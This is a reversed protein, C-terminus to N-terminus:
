LPLDQGGCAFVWLFSPNNVQLQFTQINECGPWAELFTRCTETAQLKM